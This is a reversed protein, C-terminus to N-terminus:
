QALRILVLSKSYMYVRCANLYESQFQVLLSVPGFSETPLCVIASSSLELSHFFFKILMFDGFLFFGPVSCSHPFWQVNQFLLIQLKNEADTKAAFVVLTQPCYFFTFTSFLYALISAFRRTEFQSEEGNFLFRSFLM